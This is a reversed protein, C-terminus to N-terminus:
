QPRTTIRYAGVQVEDVSASAALDALPRRPRASAWSQVITGYHRDIQRLAREPNPYARRNMIGLM